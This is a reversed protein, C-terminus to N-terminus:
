YNTRATMPLLNCPTAPQLPSAPSSGPEPSSGEWQTLLSAVMERYANMQTLKFRQIKGSPTRPIEEVFIVGGKIAKYRALQRRAFVYVDAATLQAAAPATRSRVVFARPLETTGDTSMVGIVAVDDILPHQLLVAEVEAPAVQWGRVKILEKTRGIVYYLGHKVYVVDGTRFWGFPDTAQDIDAGRYGSLLGPGRVYLEGPVNDDLVLWGDSNILKVEYGPLLYGISGPHGQQGYRTQFAIGAETMGWLQGVCAHRQLHQAFQNIAKADIPAGAVGVYRLSALLSSVPPSLSNTTVVAAAAAAATTTTTTTTTTAHRNIAHVMAPVLYTETIHYHHLAALFQKLDFRPLVFLPEGYRVPAIHAWLASYLHFFPLSLLRTVRYPAEYRISLHQAIIAAHSLVAAKPLGGTGSTAFLAAPTATAREKDHFVVWDAEGHSLLASCHLAGHSATILAIQDDVQHSPQGGALRCGHSPSRCSQWLLDVDLVCVQGPLLGQDAAVELVDALATSTTIILRPQALFLLHRLENPASSPNVGMYVGGAGVIAFFLAPYIFSNGLHVLVTEGAQVGHARLGAILSRVLLRCRAASLFRSPNEADIFIPTEDSSSSPPNTSSFTFTLLDQHRQLAM